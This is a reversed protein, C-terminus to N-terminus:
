LSSTAYEQFSEKTHNWTRAEVKQIAVHFIVRRKVRRTITDKFGPWSHNVTGTCLDFWRRATKVLKSTAALLTVDQSVKHIDAVNIVKQLWLEVDEDDTGGFEPLQSTLIKIAQAPSVTSTFPRHSSTEQRANEQAFTSFQPDGRNISLASFMQQMLTQHQFM